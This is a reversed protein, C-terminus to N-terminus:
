FFTGNQDHGIMAFVAGSTPLPDSTFSFGLSSVTAQFEIQASARYFQVRFQNVPDTFGLLQDSGQWVARVSVRADYTPGPLPFKPEDIVPYDHVEVSVFRGDASVQLASSPIATTWYLGNPAIPQHFSHLQDARGPLSV